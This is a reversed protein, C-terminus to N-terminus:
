ESLRWGHFFGSGGTSFVFSSAVLGASFGAVGGTSARASNLAVSALNVSFNPAAFPERPRGLAQGVFLGEFLV